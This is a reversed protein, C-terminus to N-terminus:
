LKELESLPIKVQQNRLKLTVFVEGNHPFLEFNVVQNQGPRWRLTYDVYNKIKPLLIPEARVRWNPMMVAAFIKFGEPQAAAKRLKDRDEENEWDYLHRGKDALISQYHQKADSLKGHHTILFYGKINKDIHSFARPYSQRVFYKKDHKAFAELLDKSLLPLPNYM